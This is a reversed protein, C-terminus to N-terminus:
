EKYVHQLDCIFRINKLYLGHSNALNKQIFIKNQTLDEFQKITIKNNGIEILYHMIIRIQHHAFSKAEFTFCHIIHNFMYETHYNVYSMTRYLNGTFSTLTFQQVSQMNLLLKQAIIMNNINLNNRIHMAKNKLLPIHEKNIYVKYEYIRKTAWFRSSFFINGRYIELISIYNFQQKLFFNFMQQLKYINIANYLTFNCVNYIGHVYKDTRAACTMCDYKTNLKNKLIYEFINRICNMNNYWGHIYEGNYTYVLIIYQKYICLNNSM